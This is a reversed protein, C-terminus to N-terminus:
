CRFTTKGAGQLGALMIITPNRLGKTLKSSTGGLLEVLEDNVLKIFQQAPNVGRIVETGIAKESIRNTFDKVVKYNVDAELLSMKVERLADKINSDSLKGHGRIKKFIDQFRNGLNELM